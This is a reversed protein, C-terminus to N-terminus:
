ALLAKSAAVPSPNAEMSNTNWFPTAFFKEMFELQRADINAGRSTSSVGDVGAWHYLIDKIDADVTAFDVLTFNAALDAVLTKLSSDLSM